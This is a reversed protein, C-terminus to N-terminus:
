QISYLGVTSTYMNYTRLFTEVATNNNTYAIYCSIFSLLNFFSFSIPPMPVYICLM